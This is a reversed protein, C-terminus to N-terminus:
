KELTNKKITDHYFNIKTFILIDEYYNVMAKKSFLCNAFDNKLWIARYNFTFGSTMENLLLRTFPEQCFLIMKGNKRLIRNATLYFKKPEIINDWEYGKKYGGGSVYNRDNDTRIPEADLNNMTGFPLDTLILDVSESEIKDSEAICDGNILKVEVEKKVFKLPRSYENENVFNIGAM